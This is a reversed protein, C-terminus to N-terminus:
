PPLSYSLAVTLCQAINLLTPLWDSSIMRLRSRAETPFGAWLMVPVVRLGRSDNLFRPLQARGGNSSDVM